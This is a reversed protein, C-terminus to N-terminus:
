QETTDLGDVVIGIHNISGQQRYNSLQSKQTKGESYLAVYDDDNGVHITYGGVASLGKWRFRWDFLGCIM